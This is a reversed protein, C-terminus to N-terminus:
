PCCNTKRDCLIRATQAAAFSLQNFSVSIFSLPPFSVGKAKRSKSLQMRVKITDLPHSDLLNAMLLYIVVKYWEISVM